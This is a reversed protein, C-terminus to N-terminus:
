NAPSSGEDDENEERGKEEETAAGSLMIALKPALVVHNTLVFRKVTAIAGTNWPERCLCQAVACNGCFAHVSAMRESYRERCVQRQTVWQERSAGSRGVMTGVEAEFTALTAKCEHWKKRVMKAEKSKAVALLGESDICDSTDLFPALDLAPKKLMCAAASAKDMVYDSGMAIVGHVFEDTNAREAAVLTAWRGACDLGEGKQIIAELMALERLLVSGRSCLAALGGFGVDAPKRADVQISAMRAFPFVFACGGIGGLSALLPVQAKAPVERESLAVVTLCM